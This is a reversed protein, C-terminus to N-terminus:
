LGLLDSPHMRQVAQSRSSVGLKRYVSIAQSKITHRSLHLREGIERFSLHTSLLPLLRLEATTLSSAGVAGARITDLTEELEDAQKPLIGLHPRLRLVDRAQRLVTRAGTTDDLALYGRGLELLAQVAYTPLAHTLLPRLRAARALHERARPVDGRHLATRAVVTYVLPSTVYDDLRGARVIALAQEALTEAQQWDQRQIAVLSRQALAFSAANMERDHTAVEVAHALIPDARDAQGALLYSIGELQLAPGRASDGRDLQERALRADARMQEVGDRCLSARLLALTAEVVTREPPAAAAAAREAAAAWREAGAPQGLLAHRWTGQIAILPYRDILGQDEFWDYWRLVTDRRGSAYARPAADWVLRAARDADGAAQAYGIALEPLDSTECWAAARAYLVPILEPERRELEARLLDRFLQHYRYWARRRDLPVLLLNSGELSELVRGSEKAGLVADCLPGCMRELVSTRTLFSVTRQPLRALLESRLYEAMLRDHGAFGARPRRRPGGAKRALAAVYLGVPWGETQRVLEDVEMPSLEVGADNLLSAAELRDMALENMGIEVLRAQARLLGVPLPPTSRSGLALQSGTPLQVALEAVADLCQVNALLEMHDLVVAVPQTIASLAAVLGPIVAAPISARPTALARFVASDIPEVRDVAAALYSLLVTPDNDRQDISVWGVRGRRAAWQALLTTKGYGAPAAVSIVPAADVALLRDV